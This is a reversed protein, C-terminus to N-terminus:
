GGRNLLTFRQPDFTVHDLLHQLHTVNEPVSQFHQVSYAAVAVDATHDQAIIPVAGALAIAVLTVVAQLKM